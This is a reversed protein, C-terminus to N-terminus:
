VHASLLPKSVQEPLQVSSSSGLPELRLAASRRAAAARRACRYIHPVFFGIMFAMASPLTLWSALRWGGLRGFSAPLLDGLYLFGTTLAIAAACGAGEFLRLRIQAPSDEPWDDCFFALAVCLVASLVIPPVSDSLEVFIAKKELFAFPLCIATAVLAAILGQIAYAFYRRGQGPERRFYSFRQITWVVVGITVIRSLGVKVTGLMHSGNQHAASNLHAFFMSLFALYLFVGLALLTLSDIPFEPENMPEAGAFGLSRLRRVIWSETLESRLVAGALFLALENFMERCNQAFTERKERILDAYAPQNDLGQLRAALTLSAASHSLFLGVRKEIEDFQEGTSAFFASYRPEQTLHQIGEYLKVVQTFRYELLEIGDAGSAKLHGALTEGYASDRYLDQLRAVDDATVSFTRPTMTSARRKLEAPIEGWNLFFSLISRDLQKLMPASSLLTTMALTALLPAPFSTDSRGVLLTRWPTLQLLVCLITYLALATIIYGGCSSWYLLRRTSSRNSPPTNFRDWAFVAVFVACAVYTLDFFDSSFM